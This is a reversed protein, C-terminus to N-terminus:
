KYVIKELIKSFCPLISIPCYNTFSSPDDAKFIPTVKAIKLDQPIVGSELSMSFIHTLPGAVSSKVEKVLSTKIEDHGAATLKLKDIIDTIEDIDPHEFTIYSSFCGDIYDLPSGALATM